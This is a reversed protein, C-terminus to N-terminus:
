ANGVTPGPLHPVSPQHMQSGSPSQRSLLIMRKKRLWRHLLELPRRRYNPNHRWLPALSLWHLRANTLQCVGFLASTMGCVVVEAEPRVELLLRILVELPLASRVPPSLWPDRMLGFSGHPPAKPHDILLLKDREFCFGQQARLHQCWAYLIQRDMQQGPFQHALNPISCLWLPRGATSNALCLDIEAVARERLAMVLSEFLKKQLNPSVPRSASPPRHWLPQQGNLRYHVTRGREPIPLHLLSPLIARLERACRYYVGFGDGCVVVSAIALRQVLQRQGELWQNNLLAVDWRNPKLEELDRILTIGEFVDPQSRRLVALWCELEQHMAALAAPQKRLVGTIVIALSAMGMTGGEEQLTRAVALQHVLHILGGSLVLIRPPSPGGPTM